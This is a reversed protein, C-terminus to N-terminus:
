ARVSLSLEDDSANNDSLEDFPWSVKISPYRTQKHHSTPTDVRYMHAQNGFRVILVSIDLSFCTLRHPEILGKTTLHRYRRTLVNPNYMFVSSYVSTSSPSM